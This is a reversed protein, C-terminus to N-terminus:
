NLDQFRAFFGGSSIIRHWLMRVENGLPWRVQTTESNRIFFWIGSVKWPIEKTDVFEMVFMESWCACVDSCLM